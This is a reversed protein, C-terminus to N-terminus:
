LLTVHLIALSFYNITFHSVTIERIPQDQCEPLISQNPLPRTVHLPNRGASSDPEHINVSCLNAYSLPKLGLAHMSEVCAM